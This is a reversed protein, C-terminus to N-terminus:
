LLLLYIKKSCFLQNIYSMSMVQFLNDSCYQVETLGSIRQKECYVNNFNLCTQILQQKDHPLILLNSINLESIQHQLTAEDLLHVGVNNIEVVEDNQHIGPFTSKEVFVGLRKKSLQLTGEM